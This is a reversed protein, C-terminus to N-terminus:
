VFILSELREIFVTEFRGCYKRVKLMLGEMRTPMHM